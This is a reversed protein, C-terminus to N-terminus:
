NNKNRKADESDLKKKEIAQILRIVTENKLLQIKPPIPINKKPNENLEGRKVSKPKSLENKLNEFADRRNNIKNENLAENYRKLEKEVEVLDINTGLNEQILKELSERENELIKWENM